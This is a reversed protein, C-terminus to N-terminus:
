QPTERSERALTNTTAPCRRQTNATEQALSVHHSRRSRQARESPRAAPSRVNALPPYGVVVRREFAGQHGTTLSSKLGRLAPFGSTRTRPPTLPNRSNNQTASM